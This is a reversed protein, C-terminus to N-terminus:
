VNVSIDVQARQILKGNYNVQPRMVKTIIKQGHELSDDDQVNVVEMNEREDFPQGLLKVMEYGSEELSAKMREIGKLLPKTGKVEKETLRDINKQMRAVEDAVNLMFTHDVITEQTNAIKAQELHMQSNLYDALKVDLEVSAEELKVQADKTERLQEAFTTSRKRTRGSVFGILLTVFVSLAILLYYFVEKDKQAQTSQNETVKQLNSLGFTSKADVSKILEDLLQSKKDLEASKDAVNKLAMDLEAAQINLKQALENVSKIDQEVTSKNYEGGLARWINTVYHYNENVRPKMNNLDNRIQTVESSLVKVKAIHSKDSQQLGAIAESNQKSLAETNSAPFTASGTALASFTVVSLASAVFLKIIQKNM